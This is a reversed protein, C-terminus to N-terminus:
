LIRKFVQMKANNRVVFYLKGKPTNVIKIDRVDGEQLFGSDTPVIAKFRPSSGNGKGNGKLILGYSADYQAQYMSAGRFNGGLIVDMNGDNDVDESFMTMIKSVQALNPLPSLKFTKNGLNELYVSEFTNVLKEDADEM